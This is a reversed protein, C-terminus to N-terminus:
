LMPLKNTEVNRYTNVFSSRFILVSANLSFIFSFVMLWYGVLKNKTVYYYDNYDGINIDDNFITGSFIICLISSISGIFIFSSAFIPATINSKYCILIYSLITGILIFICVLISLTQCIQFKIINKNIMDCIPGIKDYNVNEVLNIKSCNNNDCINSEFMGFTCTIKHINDIDIDYRYWKQISIGTICLILSIAGAFSGFIVLLSM